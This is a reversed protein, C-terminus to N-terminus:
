QSKDSKRKVKKKVSCSSESVLKHSMVLVASRPDSENRTTRSM